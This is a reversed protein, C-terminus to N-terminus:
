KISELARDYDPEDSINKVLQRYVIKGEPDLVLVARAALDKLPGETLILGYAQDFSESRFLSLPIVNKIGEVTCFRAQAFPLDKSLCLVVTNDLASAAENFHRVSMACTPTDLSPFINLIVYKGRFSSLSVEKLEKDTGTFDPAAVGVAPMNGNTSVEQGRANVKEQAQTATHFGLFALAVLLYRSKKM